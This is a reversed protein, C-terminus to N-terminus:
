HRNEIWLLHKKESRSHKDYDTMAWIDTSFSEVVGDENKVSLLISKDRCGYFGGVGAAVVTKIIVVNIEELAWIAFKWM